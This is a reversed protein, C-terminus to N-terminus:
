EYREIKVQKNWKLPINKEIGVTPVGITRFKGEFPPPLVVEANEWDNSDGKPIALTYSVNKGTMDTATIIDQSGPVGVLVNEVRTSKTDFIPRNFEDTGVNIKKILVVTLGKIMKSSWRHNQGSETAM